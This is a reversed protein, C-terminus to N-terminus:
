QEVKPSHQTDRLPLTMPGADIASCNCTFCTSWHGRKGGDSTNLLQVFLGHHTQRM